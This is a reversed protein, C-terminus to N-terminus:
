RAAAEPIKAIAERVERELADLDALYAKANAFTRPM